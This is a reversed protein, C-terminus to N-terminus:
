EGVDIDILEGADPAIGLSACSSRDFQGYTDYTLRGSFLASECERRTVLGPLVVGGAKVWRGFQRSAGDFDGDNLLALLTSTAFQTEGVNFVFSAVASFQDETLERTVRQSVARRAELSDENLIVEGREETIPTAFEGLSVEECLGRGILHGYGITCYGAPDDYADPSWGEFDKLLDVSLATMERLLQVVADPAALQEIQSRSAVRDSTLEAHEPQKAQKQETQECSAAFSGLLAVAALAYRMRM